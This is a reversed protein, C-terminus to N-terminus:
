SAEAFSATPTLLTAVFLTMPPSEKLLSARLELKGDPKTFQRTLVVDKANTKPVILLESQMDSLLVHMVEEDIFPRTISQFRANGFRAMAQQCSVLYAVKNRSQQQLAEFVELVRCVQKAEGDDDNDNCGAVTKMILDFTPREMVTLSSEQNSNMNISIRRHDPENGEETDSVFAGVFFATIVNLIISVLFLNSFIFFPIVVRRPSVTMFVQAIAHWDNAVMVQFMTLLGSSYSNFNNFDYYETTGPTEGEVILGGWLAMGIYTLIHVTTLLLIVPGSISHLVQTTRKALLRVLVFQRMFRLM